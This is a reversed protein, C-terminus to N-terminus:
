IKGQLTKTIPESQIWLKIYDSLGHGFPKPTSFWIVDFCGMKVLVHVQDIRTIRTSWSLAKWMPNGAMYERKGKQLVMFQVAAGVTGPWFGAGYFEFELVGNWFLRGSRVKLLFFIELGWGKKQLSGEKRKVWGPRRSYFWYTIPIEGSSTNLKKIM